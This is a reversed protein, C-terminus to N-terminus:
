TWDTNLQLSTAQAKASTNHRVAAVSCYVLKLLPVFAHWRTLQCLPLSHVRLWQFASPFSLSLFLACVRSWFLHVRCSSNLPPLCETSLLRLFDWAESAPNFLFLIKKVEGLSFGLAFCHRTIQSCKTPHMHNNLLIGSGWLLAWCLKRQPHECTLIQPHERPVGRVTVTPVIFFFFIRHISKIWVHVNNLM